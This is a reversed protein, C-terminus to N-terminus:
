MCMYLKYVTLKVLSFNLWSCSLTFLPKSTLPYDSPLEFHLSVPPLHSVRSHKLPLTPKTATAVGGAGSLVLSLTHRHILTQPHTPICIHRACVVCRERKAVSVLLEHGSLNLFVQLRGSIGGDRAQRWEFEGERGAMAELLQVEDLQEALCTSHPGPSELLGDRCAADVMRAGLKSSGPLNLHRRIFKQRAGNWQDDACFYKVYFRHEVHCVPTCIRAALSLYTEM